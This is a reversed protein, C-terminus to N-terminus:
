KRRRRLLGMGGLALLSLTAPEPVPTLLFAHTDGNANVGRGVIQGCDNIDDAEQLEWGSGTPILDNLDTMVGDTYLFARTCSEDPQMMTAYGVVQGSDNIDRAYSDPYGDLTGLDDTAPNIASNPATRFAHWTSNGTTL